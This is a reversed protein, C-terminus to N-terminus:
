KQRPGTGVGTRDKVKTETRDSGRDTRLGRPRPRKETPGEAIGATGTKQRDKLKPGTRVATRDPGAVVRCIAGSHPFVQQAASSILVPWCRPRRCTPLSSRAREVHTRWSKLIGPTGATSTSDVACWAGFLSQICFKTVAFSSGSRSFYVCTLQNNALNIMFLRGYLCSCLLVKGARPGCHCRSTGAASGTCRQRGDQSFFVATKLFFVPGDKYFCTRGCDGRDRDKTLRDTRM